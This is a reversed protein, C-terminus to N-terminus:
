QNVFTKADEMTKINKNLYSAWSRCLHSEGLLYNNTMSSLSDNAAIFSEKNLEITHMRSSHVYQWEGFALGGVFLVNIGIIVATLSKRNKLIKM